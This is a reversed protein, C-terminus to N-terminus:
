RLFIIKSTVRDNKNSIRILYVGSCKIEPLDDIDLKFQNNGKELVGLERSLIKQGKVNFLELRTDSKETVKFSITAQDKFPNPYVKINVAPSIQNNQDNSTISSTSIKNLCLDSEEYPDPFDYKYLIHYQTENTKCVKYQTLTENALLSFLNFSSNLMQYDEDYLNMILSQNFYRLSMLRSNMFNTYVQEEINSSPSNYLTIVESASIYDELSFSQLKTFSADLFVLTLENQNYLM